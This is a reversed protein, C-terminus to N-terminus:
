RAGGNRNAVPTRSQDSHLPISTAKKRPTHPNISASQSSSIAAQARDAVQLKNFISSAHNRVTKLSITLEEAIQANSRGRAILRLVETERETLDRPPTVIYYGDAWFPADDEAVNFFYDDGLPATELRARQAADVSVCEVPQLRLLDSQGVASDIHADSLATVRSHVHVEFLTHM